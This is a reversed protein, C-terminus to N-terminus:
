ASKNFVNHDDRPVAQTEVLANLIARMKREYNTDNIVKAIADQWDFGLLEALTNLMAVISALIRESLLAEVAQQKCDRFLGGLTRYSGIRKQHALATYQMMCITAAAVQADFDTSQCNGLGLLQKAEKFFVEIGWRITYIAFADTFCLSRDTTMLLREKECGHQRTFFLRLPVTKYTVDVQLYRMRLSRARKWEGKLMVKLQAGSYTRGQYDYKRADNKCQGILHGIKRSSVVAKILEDCVFWSDVLLYDAIIGNKGARKLMKIAASIKDTDLEKQRNCGPTWEHRTKRFQERLHRITLGFPKKVNKGKERHISFDVPIFSAGDWFGLFLYKLGLVYRGTVHDFLRGVGEIRRGTKAGITDDLVFCVPSPKSTDKGARCPAVPDSKSLFEKVFGFYVKRWDILPNNKLRYYVDKGANSLSALESNLFSHVNSLGILPLLLLVLLVGPAHFGQEKLGELGASAKKVKKGQVFALFGAVPTSGNGMLAKLESLNATGKILPM